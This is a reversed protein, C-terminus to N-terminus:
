ENNGWGKISYNQRNFIRNIQTTAEKWIPRTVPQYTAKKYDFEAQTENPASAKILRSPFDHLQSHVKIQEFLDVNIGYTEYPEIEKGKDRIESLESIFEIVKELSEQDLMKDKKVAVAVM